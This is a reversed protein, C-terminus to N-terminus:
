HSGCLLSETLSGIFSYVKVNNEIKEGNCVNKWMYSQGRTNQLNQTTRSIANQAM